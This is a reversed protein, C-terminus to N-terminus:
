HVPNGDGNTDCDSVEADAVLDMVAEADLFQERSAAGSASFEIGESELLAQPDRTDDEDYWRFAPPIQGSSRMVRYANPLDTNAIYTGM